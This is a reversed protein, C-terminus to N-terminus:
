FKSVEVAALGKGFELRRMKHSNLHERRSTAGCLRTVLIGAKRYFGGGGDEIVLQPSSTGEFCEYGGGFFLRRLLETSLLSAASHKRDFLKCVVSKRLKTNSPLSSDIRVLIAFNKSWYLIQCCLGMQRM